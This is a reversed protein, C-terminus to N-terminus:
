VHFSTTFGKVEKLEAPSTFLNSKAKSDKNVWTDAASKLSEEMTLTPKSIKGSIM